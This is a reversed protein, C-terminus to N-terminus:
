EKAREMDIPMIEILVIYSLLSVKGQRISLWVLTHHAM